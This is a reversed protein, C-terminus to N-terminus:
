VSARRAAKRAIADASAKAALARLQEYSMSQWGSSSAPEVPTEVVPEEHKPVSFEGLKEGGPYEITFKVDEPEPAPEEPAASVPETEDPTPEPAPAEPEKAPQESTTPYDLRMPMIVTKSNDSINVFVASESNCFGITAQDAGALADILFNVNLGVPHDMSSRGLAFEVPQRVPATVSELSHRQVGLQSESLSLSIGECGSSESKLAKKQADLTRQLAIVGRKDLHIVHEADAQTKDFVRVAAPFQGDVARWYVRCSKGNYDSWLACFQGGTESVWALHGDFVESLLAFTDRPILMSPM